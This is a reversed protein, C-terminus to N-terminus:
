TSGEKSEGHLDKLPIRRDFTSGGVLNYLSVGELWVFLLGLAAVLTVSIAHLVVAYRVAHAHVVIKLTQCETYYWSSNTVM